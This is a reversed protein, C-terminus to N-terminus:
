EILFIKSRRMELFLAKPLNKYFCNFKEEICELVSKM